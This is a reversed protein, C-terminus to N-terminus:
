KETYCHQLSPFHRARVDAAYRSVASSIIPELEAYIKVFRPPKHTLGLIDDIVLVQGDCAPSAGIGITPISTSQTLARAVSEITGEIVVSFAGARTVAAADAMLTEAQATDRGRIKYGGVKVVSQPLLGIHGMVPVNNQVLFRITEEMEQGGEIKIAACGTETMLRQANVLAQQPSQEYTGYPMDLVVLAHSSHRVVAEGHKIMMDLTTALTNDYGYIVMGLSDGVLLIDVHPDLLRAMSATYATLCVIPQHGKVIDKIGLRPAPHM